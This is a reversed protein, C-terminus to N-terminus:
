LHNGLLLCIWCQQAWCGTLLHSITSIFVLTFPNKKMTLTLPLHVSFVPFFFQSDFQLSDVQPCGCLYFGAQPSFCLVQLAPPILFYAHMWTAGLLTASSLLLFLPICSSYRTLKLYPLSNSLQLVPRVALRFYTQVRPLLIFPIFQWRFFTM